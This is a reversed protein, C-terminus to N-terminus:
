STGVVLLKVRRGARLTLPLRRQLRAPEADRRGSLRQRRRVHDPVAAGHGDRADCPGPPDHHAQPRPADHRLVHDRLEDRVRLPLPPPAGGPAPVQGPRRRALRPRRPVRERPRTASVRESLQRPARARQATNERGAVADGGKARPRLRRDRGEPGGGTYVGRLLLRGMSNVVHVGRVAGRRRAASRFPVAGLVVLVAVRVGRAAGHRGLPVGARPVSRFGSEGGKRRQGHAVRLARELRRGRPGRAVGRRRLDARPARGRGRGARARGVRDLRVGGRPLARGLGRAHPRRRAADVAGASAARLRGAEAAAAPGGRTDRRDRRRRRGSLRRARRHREGLRGSADGGARRDGRSAAPAAPSPM